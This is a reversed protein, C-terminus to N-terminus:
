CSYQQFHLDEPINRWQSQYVIESMEFARPEMMSYNSFLPQEQLNVVM